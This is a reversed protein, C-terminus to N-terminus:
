YVPLGNSPQKFKGKNLLNYLKAYMFLECYSLLGLKTGEIEKEKAVIIHLVYLDLYNM